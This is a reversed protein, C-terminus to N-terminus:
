YIICLTCWTWFCRPINCSSCQITSNTSFWFTSRIYGTTTSCLCFCCINRLGIKGLIFSLWAASSLLGVLSILSVVVGKSNRSKFTNSRGVSKIPNIIKNTVFEKPNIGQFGGLMIIHLIRFKNKRLTM